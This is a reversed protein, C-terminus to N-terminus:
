RLLPCNSEYNVTTKMPGVYNNIYLIKIPNRIFTHLEIVHQETFYVLIVKHTYIHKQSSPSRQLFRSSLLTDNYVVIRFKETEKVTPLLPGTQYSKSPIGLSLSWKLGM